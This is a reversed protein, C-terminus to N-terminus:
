GCGLDEVYRSEAHVEELTLGLESATIRRVDHLVSAPDSVRGMAAQRTVILRVVDAVTRVHTLDQDPLDVGFHDELSMTLEVLDLGM